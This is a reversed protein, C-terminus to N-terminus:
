SVSASVCGLVIDCVVVVVMSTAWSTGTSRAEEKEAITVAANGSEAREDPESSLLVEWDVEVELEVVSEAGESSVEWEAEETEEVAGEVGFREGQGDMRMRESEVCVMGGEREAELEAAEEGLMVKAGRGRMSGRM